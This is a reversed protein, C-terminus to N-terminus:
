CCSERPHVDSKAEELTKENTEQKKSDSDSTSVSEPEKQASNTVNSNNNVNTVESSSDLVSPSNDGKSNDSEHKDKVLDEFIEILSSIGCLYGDEHNGEVWSSKHDVTINNPLPVTKGFDIM